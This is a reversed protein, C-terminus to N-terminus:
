ETKSHSAWSGADLDLINRSVPLVTPRRLHNRGPAHHGRRLWERRPGARLTTPIAGNSRPPAPCIGSPEGRRGRESKEGRVRHQRVAGPALGLQQGMANDTNRDSVCPELGAAKSQRSLRFSERRPTHFVLGDLPELGSPARRAERSQIGVHSPKVAHALGTRFPCGRAHGPAQEGPTAVGYAPARESLHEDAKNRLLLAAAVREHLLEPELRHGLLVM